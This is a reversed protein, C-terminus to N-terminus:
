EKERYMRTYGVPVGYIAIYDHEEGKIHMPPYDSNDSTLLIGDPMHYVHKVAASDDVLVVAVQGDNVDPRHKIYLIDGPLYTPVMSDGEVELAADCDIPADVFTDYDTEAMIPVGAAVKGILPVRQHHMDALPKIGAKRMADLVNGQKELVEDPLTNVVDLLQDDTRAESKGLLFDITCNFLLALKALLDMDPRTSNNEWQSIAGQTVHLKKALQAQSLGRKKRERKINDGLM